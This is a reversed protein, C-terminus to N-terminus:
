EFSLSLYSKATCKKIEYFLIRNKNEFNLKYEGSKQVNGDDISGGPSGIQFECDPPQYGPFCHCNGM